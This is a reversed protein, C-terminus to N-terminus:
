ALNALVLDCRRKQTEPRGIHVKVTNQLRSWSSVPPVVRKDRLPQRLQVQYYHPLVQLGLYLYDSIMWDRPWALVVEAM